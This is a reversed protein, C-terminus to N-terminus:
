IKDVHGCSKAANHMYASSQSDLYVIEIIEQINKHKKDNNNIVLVGGHFKINNGSGPLGEFFFTLLM